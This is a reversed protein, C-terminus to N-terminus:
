TKKWKPHDLSGGDRQGANISPATWGTDVMMDTKIATDDSLQM